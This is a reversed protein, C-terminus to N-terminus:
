PALDSLAVQSDAALPRVLRRGVVDGLRSPPLGTGPKKLALDERHLLAGPALDRRAVISKTFMTRVQRLDTPVSAKDVPNGIMRRIQRVGTVLEQLEATTVSAVMDPGFMERSLTVHVEVVDAGLAVAALSPFVSGSHDSLGVPCRYRERYLELM